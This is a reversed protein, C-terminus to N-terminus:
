RVLRGEPPSVLHHLFSARFDCADAQSVDVDDGHGARVYSALKQLLLVGHECRSGRDHGALEDGAPVQRRHRIRHSVLPLLDHAAVQEGAEPMLPKM